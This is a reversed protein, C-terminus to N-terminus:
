LDYERIQNFVKTEYEDLEWLWDREDDEGQWDLQDVFDSAYKKVLECYAQQNNPEPNEFVGCTLDASMLIMTDELMERKQEETM